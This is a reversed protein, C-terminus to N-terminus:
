VCVHLIYLICVHTNHLYIIPGRTNSGKFSYREWIVPLGDIYGSRQMGWYRYVASFCVAFNYRLNSKRMQYLRFTLGCFKVFFSVCIEDYKKRKEKKKKKYKIWRHIKCTRRSLWKDNNNNEEWSQNWHLYQWYYTLLWKM